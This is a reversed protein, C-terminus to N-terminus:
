AVAKRRRGRRSIREEPTLGGWIGWTRDAVGDEIREAEALCAAKVPCQRCLAKAEAIRAYGETSSGRTEWDFWM